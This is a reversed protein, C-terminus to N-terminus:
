EYKMDHYIILNTAFPLPAYHCPRNVLHCQPNCGVFCQDFDMPNDWFVPPNFVLLSRLRHSDLTEAAVLQEYPGRSSNQERVKQISHAPVGM